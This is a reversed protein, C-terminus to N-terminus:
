WSQPNWCARNFTFYIKNRIAMTKVSSHESSSRSQSSSFTSGLWPGQDPKIEVKLIAAALLQFRCIKSMKIIDPASRPSITVPSVDRPLLGWWQPLLCCVTLCSVQRSHRDEERSFERENFDSDNLTELLLLLCSHRTLEEEQDIMIKKQNILDMYTM